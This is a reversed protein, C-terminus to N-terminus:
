EQFTLQPLLGMVLPGWCDVKLLSGSLHFSRGLAEHDKVLKLTDAM